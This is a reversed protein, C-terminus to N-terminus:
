AGAWLFVLVSAFGLATRGAHLAAWRDLLARTEAGASGPETAQLAKNVPMIALLTYPWNALMLLGGVLWAAGGTSVWAIAGLVFGLIALSSQMVLGRAYAPKWQTLAPGIELGRRAPHEAVNIYLAAGAFLAAVVLALQGWIM